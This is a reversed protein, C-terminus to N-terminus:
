QGENPEFRRNCFQLSQVRKTGIYLVVKVQSQWIVLNDHVGRHSTPQETCRFPLIRLIGHGDVSRTLINEMSYDGVTDLCIWSLLIQLLCIKSSTDHFEKHFKSTTHTITTVPFKAWSFESHSFRVLFIKRTLRIRSETMVLSLLPIDRNSSEM